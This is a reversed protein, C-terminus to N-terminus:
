AGKDLNLRREQITVTPGDTADDRADQVAARLGEVEASDHGAFLTTSGDHVIPRPINDVNVSNPDNIKEEIEITHKIIKPLPNRVNEHAQEVIVRTRMDIAKKINARSIISHDDIEDLLETLDNYMGQLYSVVKDFVGDSVQGADVTYKSRHYSVLVSFNLEEWLLTLVDRELLDCSTAEAVSSSASYCYAKMYARIKADSRALIQRREYDIDNLVYIMDKGVCADVSDETFNADSLEDICDKYAEEMSSLNEAIRKFYMNHTQVNFEYATDGNSEELLRNLPQSTYTPKPTLAHVLISLLALHLLPLKLM